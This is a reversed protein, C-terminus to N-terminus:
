LDKKAKNARMMEPYGMKNQFANLSMAIRKAKTEPTKASQIWKSFYNRHSGPLSEFFANAKKDDELCAMLDADLEVPAKDEVMDVLVTDNKQKKLKRRLDANIPMIFDGEGMPLLSVAKIPLGDIRGKVRFSKKNNPKIQAAIDADILIYTWGTKEGQKDFKQLIAKFQTM